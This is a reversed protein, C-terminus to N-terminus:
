RGREVAGTGGPGEVRAWTGSRGGAKHWVALADISAQPDEELVSVVLSLGAVACATLAEMEVGTKGWADTTAVVEISGEGSVLEISTSDLPLPHCLPVLAATQKAAQVGAVRACSAAWSEAAVTATTRVLCRAIAQRHTVDKAMVDVM